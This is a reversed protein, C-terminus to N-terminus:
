RVLYVSIKAHTAVYGGNSPSFMHAIGGPKHTSMVVLDAGVDDISDVLKRALEVGPDHSIVVHDSVKVHEIASEVVALGHLKARFEEPSHASAGPSTDTVGVFVVEAKHDRAMDLAVKISKSMEEIHALDVPVMIKRYM